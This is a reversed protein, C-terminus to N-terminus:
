NYVRIEITQENLISDADTGTSDWSFISIVDASVRTIAFSGIGNVFGTNPLIATKLNTFAGALTGVYDGVANRTWVIAGSLTNDLVTVTPAGTAVQSLLATYVKYKETVNVGYDVHYTFDNGVLLFTIKYKTKGATGTIIIDESATGGNLTNTGFPRVRLTRTEGIPINILNYEGTVTYKVRSDGAYAMGPLLDRLDLTLLDTFDLVDNYIKFTPDIPEIIPFDITPKGFYVNSNRDSGSPDYFKVGTEPAGVFPQPIICGEFVIMSRKLSYILPNNADNVETHLGQFLCRITYITEPNAGNMYIGGVIVNTYCGEIQGGNVTVGYFSQVTLSAGVIGGLRLTKYDVAGNDAHKRHHVGGGTYFVLTGSAPLQDFNGIYYTNIGGPKEVIPYTKYASGDTAQLILVTGMNTLIPITTTIEGINYIDNPSVFVGKTFSTSGSGSCDRVDLLNWNIINNNGSSEYDVGKGFNSVFVKDFNSYLTGNKLVIGRSFSNALVGRITISGTHKVTTVNEQAYGTNRGTIILGDADTVQQITCFTELQLNNSITLTNSRFNGKLELIANNNQCFNIAQQIETTDNNDGDAKAGFMYPTVKRFIRKIRKGDLTVLVTGTNDVTTADLADYYWTGEQNKDTTYFHTNDLDGTLNRIQDITKKIVTKGLLGAHANEDETHNVLAEADAKENLIAQIDNIATIPIKEDKHYFSDIWAHFQAQTPKLGTKFWNKLTNKDAM